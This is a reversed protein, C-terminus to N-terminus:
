FSVTQSSQIALLFTPGYCWFNIAIARINARQDAREQIDHLAIYRIKGKLLVIFSSDVFTYRSAQRCYTPWLLYKKPRCEGSYRAASNITNMKQYYSHFDFDCM